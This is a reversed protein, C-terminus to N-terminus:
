LDRRNLTLAFSTTIATNNKVPTSRKIFIADKSKMTRLETRWLFNDGFSRDINISASGTKFGAPTGTAIMVGQEDSYYEGRVAIAWEKFAYRLIGSTGYWTNKRNNGKSKQQQGIDFGIILGLQDSIGFIGYVDHFYRWLRTSDPTDTGLFTSYNLTVNDSPKLQLQTGWSMLSNGPVRQIRQWGNLALGSFFWKSNGSTYTLRAGTEFYPSNEAILSRTLTWCTPAHASEFGIHSSFIGADMWLNKHKALKVGVGAEYLNKLVGPEAAYNANMYTGTALAINGRIRETNYSVKIFALNSNFENHRNHNYLFFPRSNDAPKNFDYSYYTEVYGEIDLLDSQEPITDQTRATNFILVWICLLWSKKM